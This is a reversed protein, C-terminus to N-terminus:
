PPPENVPPAVELMVMPVPVSIVNFAIDPPIFLKLVLRFIVRPDSKVTFPVRVRVAPVNVTLLLVSVNFPGVIAPVGALRAVVDEDLRIKPPVEAPTNIGVLTAAKFLRVIDLVLMTVKCLEGVTLPVSVRVAPVNVIPAFM